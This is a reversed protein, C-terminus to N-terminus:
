PKIKFSYSGCTLTTAMGPLSLHAITNSPITVSYTITKGKRTWSSARLNPRVIIALQKTHMGNDKSLSFFHHNSGFIRVSLIYKYLRALQIALRQVSAPEPMALNRVPRAQIRLPVPVTRNPRKPLIAEMLTPHDIIFTIFLNM